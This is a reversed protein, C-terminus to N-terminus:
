EILKFNDGNCIAKLESETVRDVDEVNVPESWRNGNYLSILILKVASIQALIYTGGSIFFRDGVKYTREEESLESELDKISQKLEEIRASIRENKSRKIGGSYTQKKM